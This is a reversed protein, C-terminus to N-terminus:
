MVVKGLKESFVVFVCEISGFCNDICLLILNVCCREVKLLKSSVFCKLVVSDIMVLLIVLGCWVGRIWFKVLVFCVNGFSLVLIILIEFVFGVNNVM